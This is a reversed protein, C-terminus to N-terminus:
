SQPQFWRINSQIGVGEFPAQARSGSLMCSRKHLLCSSGRMRVLRPRQGLCAGNGRSTTSGATGLKSRNRYWLTTRMKLQPITYRDSTSLRATTHDFPRSARAGRAGLACRM